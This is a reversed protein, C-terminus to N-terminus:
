SGVRAPSAAPAPANRLAPTPGLTLEIRRVLTAFSDGTEAAVHGMLVPLSLQEGWWRITAHNVLKHVREYAKRVGLAESNSLIALFKDEDWRGVFDGPRFSQNLDQAMVQLMCDSAKRGYKARFTELQDARIVIIGFPIRYECFGALTERLHFETFGRNALGTVEDTAQAPTVPRRDERNSKQNHIYFNAVVAVISGHLDRVPAFRMRVAVTHRQKHELVVQEESSKGEHLTAVFPCATGCRTGDGGQCLGLVAGHHRGIVEHQHYGVIREAGLNWFLIKGNRDIVCVGTPLNELVARSIEAEQLSPM